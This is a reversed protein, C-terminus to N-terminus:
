GPAVPLASLLRADYQLILLADIPGIVGTGNVDGVWPCPVSPILGAVMQLIISTDVPNTAGDCNVDGAVAPEPSHILGGNPACDSPGAFRSGVDLAFNFQDPGGTDTPVGTLAENPIILTVSRQGYLAIAFLQEGSPLPPAAYNYLPIIAGASNYTNVSMDVGLGAPLGCIYDVESSYGTLRNQDIDIDINAYLEDNTNSGPPDIPRAFQVTLCYSDSGGAGSVSTIDHPEPRAPPSPPVDPSTIPGPPPPRPFLTDGAPDDFTFDPAPCSPVALETLNLTVIGLGVDAGAADASRGFGFNYSVTGLQIYYVSGGQAEFALRTDPYFSYPNGCAIPTLNDIANGQYVVMFANSVGSNETNAQVMMDRPAVFRYWVTSAAAGEFFCNPPPESFEASATLMDVEDSFPITTVATADAFDDNPPRVGADLSFSLSGFSGGFGGSGGFDGFGGFGGFAGGVQFYYTRGAEVDFAVRASVIIEGRDGTNFGAACDVPALGFKSDTWVGITAPFDSGTTGAILFADSQATFKYWATAQLRYACFPSPEGFQTTADSTDVTDSYPVGGIVTAALYGDNAPPNGVAVSFTLTPLPNGYPYSQVQFLYTKGAEVLFAVRAQNDPGAYGYDCVEEYIDAGDAEWVALVTDFDSGATDAVLVGDQAATHSYWVTGALFGFGCSAQPEGPESTANKIVQPGTTFPLSTILTANARSDNDPIGCAPDASDTLGDLDNDIGDSCSGPNPLEHEPVSNADNPDSGFRKETADDFADSDNRIPTCGPDAADTLGDLDNDFVDGCSILFGFGSFQLVADFRSDEPSNGADNPDAGLFIEMADSVITNDSDHCGNDDLDTLGDLDNDLGDSCLPLGSVFVAGTDEPTSAANNLDSGGIIEALDIAGDGDTDDFAAQAPPPGQQALTLALFAIVAAVATLKLMRLSFHM